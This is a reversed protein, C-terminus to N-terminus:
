GELSKLRWSSTEEDHLLRGENKFRTLLSRLTSQNMEPLTAKVSRFIAATSAGHKRYHQNKTLFKCVLSLTAFKHSNRPNLRDNEKMVHSFSRLELAIEWYEYEEKLQEIEALINLKREGIQTLYNKM